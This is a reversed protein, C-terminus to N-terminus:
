IKKDVDVLDLLANMLSKPELLRKDVEWSIPKGDKEVLVKMVIISLGESKAISQMRRAINYWVNQVDEPLDSM